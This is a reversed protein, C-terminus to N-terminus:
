GRVRFWVRNVRSVRSVGLGSNPQTPNPLSFVEPPVDPNPLLVQRPPEAGDPARNPLVVVAGAVLPPPPPAGAGPGATTRAHGFFFCLSYVGSHLILLGM